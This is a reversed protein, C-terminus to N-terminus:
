NSLKSFSIVFSKIKPTEVGFECLSKLCFLELIFEREGNKSLLLQKLAPPLNPLADKIEYSVLYGNIKGLFQEWTFDRM